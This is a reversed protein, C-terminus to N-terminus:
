ICCYRMLVFIFKFLLYKRLDSEQFKEMPGSVCMRNLTLEVECNDARLNVSFQDAVHIFLRETEVFPYLM